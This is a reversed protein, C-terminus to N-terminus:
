YLFLLWSLIFDLHLGFGTTKHDTFCGDNTELRWVESLESFEITQKTCKEIVGIQAVLMVFQSVVRRSKRLTQNYWHIQKALDGGSSIQDLQNKVQSGQSHCHALVILSSM